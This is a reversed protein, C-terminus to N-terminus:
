HCIWRSNHMSPFKQRNPRTNRSTLQLTVWYPTPVGLRAAICLVRLCPLLSGMAPLYHGWSLATRTCARVWMGWSLATRFVGLAPLEPLSGWSPCNQYCTVWQHGWSRAIAFGWMTLLCLGVDYAFAYGFTPQGANTGYTLYVLDFETHEMTAPKNNKM